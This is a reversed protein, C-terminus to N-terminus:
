VHAPKNEVLSPTVPELLVGRLPLHGQGTDADVDVERKIALDAVCIFLSRRFGEIFYKRPVSQM